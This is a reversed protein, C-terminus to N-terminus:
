YWTGGFDAKSMAESLKKLEPGDMGITPFYVPTGHEKFVDSAGDLSEGSVVGLASGPVGDSRRLRPDYRELVGGWGDGVLTVRCGRKMMLWAAVEPARGGPLAAVRGQTGMPLGGPGPIREHFVYARNDRVEIHITADPDTLDVSVGPNADFIASGALKALEMSNYPHTGERRARVAFSGSKPIKGKSYEAAVQLIEDMGSGCAVAPSVSAVGFVRTVAAVCRAMDDSELYFRSDSFRILAEVGDAALMDLINGRLADEFARRIPPSKLGIESYRVLLVDM